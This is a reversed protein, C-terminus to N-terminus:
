DIGRLRSLVQQVAYPKFIAPTQIMRELQKFSDQIQPSLSIREKIKKLLFHCTEQEYSLSTSLLMQELSDINESISPFFQPDYNSDNPIRM